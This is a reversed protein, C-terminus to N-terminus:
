FSPDRHDCPGDLYVRSSSYPVKWDGAATLRAREEHYSLRGARLVSRFKITKGSKSVETIQITYSDSGVRVSGILGVAPTTSSPDATLNQPTM